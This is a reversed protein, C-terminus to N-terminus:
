PREPTPPAIVRRAVELFCRGGPGLDEDRRWAVFIRRPIKVREITVERLSGAKLEPEVALRSVFAVGLGSMVAAKLAILDTAELVVAQESLPTGMNAFRDEVM